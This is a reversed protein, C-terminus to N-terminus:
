PWRDTEAGVMAFRVIGFVVPLVCGVSSCVDGVLERWCLLMFWWGFAVLEGLPCAKVVLLMGGTLVDQALVVFAQFVDSVM